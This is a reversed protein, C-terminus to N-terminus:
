YDIKFSLRLNIQPYFRKILSQIELRMTRYQDNSIFPISAYIPNKNVTSVLPKPVILSNIKNRTLNEILFLPFNNQCFYKKLKEVENIFNYYTSSLKYARDILCNVLNTKFKHDISSDHKMGLGTFTPKRYLDTVFANGSKKVHVDLFPLSDDHEVEVTFKINTHQSNLYDHFKSIHDNKRFLLFCDDVYRRYLVPLRLKTQILLIVFLNRQTNKASRAM